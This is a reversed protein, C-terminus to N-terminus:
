NGHPKPGPKAPALIRNSIQELKRVFQEDGLPRGTKEHHRFIEYDIVDGNNVWSSSIGYQALIKPNVLKDTFGNLRSSASSWKWQIPSEALGARVPNQEIYNFANFLHRESLPFSAFRGQWLHGRWGERFNIQRTYRRHTESVAQALSAETTPILLLHVHNPMLCYSLVSVGSQDCWTGLLSLYDSYDSDSFFVQQRRNGRQTIHHVIGPIVVRAMRAM